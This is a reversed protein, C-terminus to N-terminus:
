PKREKSKNEDDPKWPSLRYAFHKAYEQANAFGDRYDKPLNNWHGLAVTYVQWYYAEDMARGMAMFDVSPFKKRRLFNFM